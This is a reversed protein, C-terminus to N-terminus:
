GGKRVLAARDTQENDKKGGETNGPSTSRPRKLQQYLAEAIGKQMSGAMVKAYEDDLLSTYIDEARGGYFLPSKEVTKRMAHLLEAYLLSEFERCKERLRVDENNQPMGAARTAVDTNPAVQPIVSSFLAAEM